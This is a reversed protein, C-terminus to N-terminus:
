TTPKLRKKLEDDNHPMQMEKVSLDSLCLDLSTLVHVEKVGKAIRLDEQGHQKM